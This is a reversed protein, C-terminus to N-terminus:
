KFEKKGRNKMKTALIITLFILFSSNGKKKVRDHVLIKDTKGVVGLVKSKHKKELSKSQLHFKM